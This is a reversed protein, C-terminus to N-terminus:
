KELHFEWACSGEQPIVYLVGNETDYVSTHVTHWTSGDRSIAGYKEMADIVADAFPGAAAPDGNLCEAGRCTMDIDGATFESYWFPDIYLDYARTYYVKKMLDMMGRVTSGQDFCDHLIKYREYGMPHRTLSEMSGDFGTLHFNTMVPRDDVFGGKSYDIVNLRYHMDEDPILEVVVTNFTSDDPSQPGSIMYHAEEQTGLSFIDMEEMMAVAEDISSANDLLLRPVMLPCTDDSPDDNKMVYEGMEEYGVVNINVTLGADNIGDLTLYPLLSIVKGIGGNEVDAATIETTACVGISAHRGNENAPVHIVFEPEEDFTWDYNRGRLYGNQVSSCGGLKPNYRTFYENAEGIHEEYGDCNIEFLYDTVRSVPIGAEGNEASAPLASFALAMALATILIKKM